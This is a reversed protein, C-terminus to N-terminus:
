IEIHLQGLDRDKNLMKPGIGNPEVVTLWKPGHNNFVQQGEVIVRKLGLKSVPVAAIFNYSAGSKASFGM